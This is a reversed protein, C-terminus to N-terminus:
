SSFRHPNFYLFIIFLLFLIGLNFDSLNFPVRVDRSWSYEQEDLVFSDEAFFLKGQKTGFDISVAFFYDRNLSLNFSNFSIQVEQSSANTGSGQVDFFSLVFLQKSINFTVKFKPVFNNANQSQSVQV